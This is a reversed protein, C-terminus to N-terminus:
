FGCTCPNKKHSFYICVFIICFKIKNYAFFFNYAIFTHHHYHGNVFHLFNNNISQNHPSQKITAHNGTRQQQEEKANTPQEPHTDTAEVVVSSVTLSGVAFSRFCSLYLHQKIFFTLSKEIIVWLLLFFRAISFPLTVQVREVKLTDKLDLRFKRASYSVRFLHAFSEFANFLLETNSLKQINKKPIKVLSATVKKNSYSLM